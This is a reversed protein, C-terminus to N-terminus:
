HINGDNHYQHTEESNKSQTLISVAHPLLTSIAEFSEVAGTPSGPLNVILCENLIGAEGRSLFAHPNKKSSDLRIKESLGPVRKQIVSLTAEPTVDRPAVGTGGTTLILNVNSDNATQILFRKIQIVEDPVIENAVVMWGLKQVALSLAPGSLDEREGSHSRDSVTLIAVTISM